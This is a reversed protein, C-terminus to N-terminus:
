KEYLKLYNDRKEDKWEEYFTDSLHFFDLWDWIHGSEVAEQPSKGEARDASSVVGLTKNFEKYAKEKRTDYRYDDEKKEDKADDRDITSRFDTELEKEFMKTEEMSINEPIVEKIGFCIKGNSDIHSFYAKPKGAEDMKTKSFKEQMWIGHGECRKTM